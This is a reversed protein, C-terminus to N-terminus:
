RKTWDRPEPGMQLLLTRGATMETHDIWYSRLPEGDLAIYQIYKNIPSNDRVEIRFEGGPVQVVAGDVAPSGFVYRGGAPEVQYMGLASLVYWASMQGVDENGCLGAPRDHYLTSLIQRVRDATKWPRGLLTYLYAIHHSPENGHAYQGVLGSIDPSAEAGLEGEVVFLSDLKELMRERGGFCAALGEVDHPVLWTYQWANGETYDQDMHRSHFPDFPTRWAGSASRGRIFGTAPDFYRRYARSRALFYAYDECHGEQRAVQALAWDAIAYELCYGVSENFEYPIYGYRKYLDLGREDGMATRKMAEYAKARDIGGFGKLLADAMVPIAPNGVMCDTENGWLHWVPLKGQEDSIHLMTNIIDPVREPHILTMLPHAARYTDWLSFTTYCTFTTDRRVRGDAGRYSGDTDSFVSPAIMTHYLATYFIRRVAPDATEIRIKALERNWRERAARRVAEFDWGPCEAELNRRAQEASVASLAVKALLPRVSADAFDFRAYLKRGRCAGGELSVSDGSFSCGSFPRSFELHFYVRQDRAWGTSRRWGEVRLSDVARIGCDVAEDWGQGNELDLVVAGDDSAPFTYRSLGVRETATLEVDIGYRELRTAYYGPESRERDHSFFSWMGSAPDDAQGRALTVDGRVPMLSIDNLDGIGTGSLHTHGFGIVTTDAYNYGSCWDWTQPISTPGLQVMGFPVNAGVFVHGHDGSGILPDVYAAFDEGRPAACATLLLTYFLISQNKM